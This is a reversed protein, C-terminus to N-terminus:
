LPPPVDAGLASRPTRSSCGRCVWHVNADVMVGAEDTEIEMVGELVKDGVLLHRRGCFTCYKFGLYDRLGTSCRWRFRKVIREERKLSSPDM